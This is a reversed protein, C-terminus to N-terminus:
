DEAWRYGKARITRILQPNAPDSEIKRRLSMVYNDVTRTELVFDYEWVSALLQARSVVAGRACILRELIGFEKSNLELKRKDRWIQHSDLDIELNGISVFRRLDSQRKNRRLLAGIRARAEKFSVPKIWYDDAGYELGKVVSEPTDMCTLMVIPCAINKERLQACVHIGDGDPLMWDLIILDPQARSAAILGREGNAALAVTYGERKLFDGWAGRLHDDDEIMVVTPKANRGSLSEPSEPTQPPMM